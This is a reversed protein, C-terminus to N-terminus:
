YPREGIWNGAPAYNCAWIQGGDPCVSFGCGVEQTDRWVIQTYHGCMRGWRCRNRRYDYDRQESAWDQVVQAASVYGVEVRGDSWSLPSMWFLNEGYNYAALQAQPRHRMQCANRQALHGAWQTAFDALPRSWRLAPLRHSARVQNHAALM